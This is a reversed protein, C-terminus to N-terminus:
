FDVLAPENLVADTNSLLHQEAESRLRLARELEQLLERPSTGVQIYADAGAQMAAFNDGRVGLAVVVQALGERQIRQILWWGCCDSIEQEILALRPRLRRALELGQEDTDAEGVIEFGDYAGLMAVLAERVPGSQIAVLV